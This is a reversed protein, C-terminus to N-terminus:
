PLRLNYKPLLATPHWSEKARRLGEDGANDQRNIYRLRPYAEAMASAYLHALTEGSGAAEHDAKEIHVHLTDFKVEGVTFGILRDGDMLVKGRFYPAYLPWKLLMRGLALHEARGSPTGDHGMKALLGLCQMALTGNMDELTAGPHEAMFRNVHNRKRKLQNGTLSVFSEVEYMYDSWQPGLPEIETAVDAFLHLRDEPIATLWLPMGHDRCYDALTELADHLSGSGLPLSFSPISPNDERGGSIFLMDDLEAMRYNFLERWLIVGGLTYDCSRSDTLEMYHALRAFDSPTIDRFQLTSFPSYGHLPTTHINLRTSTM